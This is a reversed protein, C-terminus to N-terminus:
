RSLPCRILFRVKLKKSDIRDGIIDKPDPIHTNSKDSIQRQPPATAEAPPEKKASPPKTVREEADTTDGVTIHLGNKQQKSAYATLYAAKTELVVRLKEPHGYHRIRRVWKSNVPVVQETKHPSKVEFLDFVIRAPNRMIFSEYRGIEGDTQVFIDIEKPDTVFDIFKLHVAPAEKTEDASVSIPLFLLYGLVILFISLLYGFSLPYNQCRIIQMLREGMGQRRYGILEGQLPVAEINSLINVLYQLQNSRLIGYITNKRYEIRNKTLFIKLWLRHIGPRLGRKIWVTM